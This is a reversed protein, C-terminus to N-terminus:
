CRTYTRIREHLCATTRSRRRLDTITCRMMDGRHGDLKAATERRERIELPRRGGRDNDVNM